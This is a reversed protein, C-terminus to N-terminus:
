WAWGMCQAEKACAACCGAADVTYTVRLEKSSAM